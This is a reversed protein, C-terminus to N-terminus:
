PATEQPVDPYIIAHHLALKAQQVAAWTGTGSIAAQLARSLALAAEARSPM